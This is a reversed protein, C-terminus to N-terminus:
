NYPCFCYRAQPQAPLYTCIAPRWQLASLFRSTLYGIARLVVFDVVIDATAAWVNNGQLILQPVVNVSRKRARRLVRLVASWNKEIRM